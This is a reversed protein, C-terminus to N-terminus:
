VIPNTNQNRRGPPDGKTEQYVKERQLPSTGKHLKLFFYFNSKWTYVIYIPSPAVFGLM